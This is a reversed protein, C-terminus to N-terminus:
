PAAPTVAFGKPLEQEFAPPVPPTEEYFEVNEFGLGNLFDLMYQQANYNARELVGSALAEERITAEAVRRVETELEPNARTLLGTDRDAVFSKENDLAPLDDFLVAEPLHVWVTDPDVVQIDAPTMQAFDVGAVVKGYAVFVMSEGLAGWLADSNREATIVKELDVSATELRSLDNIQHVITSPNPLIVPTVPVILQRVLDSVPQVVNKEARNVGSIFTYVLISSLLFFLILFVYAAKKLM